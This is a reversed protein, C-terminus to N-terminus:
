IFRINREIAEQIKIQEIDVKGYKREEALTYILNKIRDIIEEERM